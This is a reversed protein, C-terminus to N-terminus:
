PSARFYPLHYGHSAMRATLSYGFKMLAYHCPSGYLKPSRQCDWVLGQIASPPWYWGDNGEYLLIQLLELDGSRVASSLLRPPEVGLNTGAWRDAGKRCLFRVVPIRGQGIARELPTAGMRTRANIDAGYHLLTDIIATTEELSMPNEKSANWVLSHMMTRGLHDRYNPSVGRRLLLEGIENSYQFANFLVGAGRSPTSQEPKLGAFLLFNVVMKVTRLPTEKRVTELLYDLANRGLTDTQNPSAGLCLWMRLCSLARNNGLSVAITRHFIPLVRTAELGSYDLDYGRNVFLRAIEINCHDSKILRMVPTLSNGDLHYMDAGRDLLRTIVDVNNADVAAHLASNVEAKTPVNSNLLIDILEFRNREIATVISYHETVARRRLRDKFLTSLSGHVRMLRSLDGGSLYDGVELFLERPLRTISSM